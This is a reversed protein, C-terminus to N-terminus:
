LLFALARGLNDNAHDTSDLVLRDQAWPEWQERRRVVDDWSLEPFGEIARDRGGLRERHLTEDSCIVELVKLDAGARSAAARWMQRAVEGSSVADAIVSLGLQLQHEALVAVVEYAAVGTELSPAIGCRWM